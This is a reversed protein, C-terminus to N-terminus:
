NKEKRVSIRCPTKQLALPQPFGPNEMGKMAALALSDYGSSGCVGKCECKIIALGDRAKFVSDM